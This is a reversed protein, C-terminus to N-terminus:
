VGHGFGKGKLVVEDEEQVIDFFSSRLKWDARITTTTLSSDSALFYPDRANSSYNLDVIKANDNSLELEHIMELYNLWKSKSVRKEWVAHPQSLCFTDPVSRLYSKEHTWVDESNATRGGCNSHYAATLFKMNKDVLVMGSTYFVASRISESNSAVGNYAQCHVADCLQFGTEEHKRLNDYSYTRAIVSQIKYYERDQSPGVEAEVVGCLYNNIFLNNVLVLNSNAVSLFLNEYYTKYPTNPYICKVKLKDFISSSRLRLDKVETQIELSKKYISIAGAVAKITCIDGGDLKAVLQGDAIIEYDGNLIEVEIERKNSTNHFVSIDVHTIQSFVSVSFVFFLLAIKIKM